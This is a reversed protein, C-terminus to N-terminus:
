FAAVVEGAWTCAGEGGRCRSRRSPSLLTAHKSGPWENADTHPWPQSVSGGPGAAPACEAPMANASCGPRTRKPLTAERRASTDAGRSQPAGGIGGQGAAGGQMMCAAHCAQLAEQTVVLRPCCSHWLPQGPDTDVAPAGGGGAGGLAQRRRQGARLCPPLPTARPRTPCVPLQQNVARTNAWALQAGEQVGFWAPGSHVPAAGTPLWTQLPACRRPPAAPAGSGSGHAAKSPRYLPLEFRMRCPLLLCLTGARGASAGGWRGRWELMMGHHSGQLGWLDAPVAPNQAALPHHPGCCVILLHHPGCHRAGHVHQHPNPAVPAATSSHTPTDCILGQCMQSPLWARGPRSRQLLALVSSHLHVGQGVRRLPQAVGGLDRRPRLALPRVLLCPRADDAHTLPHSRSVIASCGATQPDSPRHLTNSDSSNVINQWGNTERGTQASVSSKPSLRAAQRQQPAAAAASRGTAALRGAKQKRPLWSQSHPQTAQLWCVESQRGPRGSAPLIGHPHVRPQARCQPLRHGIPGLPGGNAVLGLSAAAAQQPWHQSRRVGPRAGARSRHLLCSSSVGSPAAERLHQSGQQQGGGKGNGGPVMEADVRVEVKIVAVRVADLGGDVPPRAGERSGCSHVCPM